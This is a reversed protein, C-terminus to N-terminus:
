SSTLQRALNWHVVLCSQVRTAECRDVGRNLREWSKTIHETPTPGARATPLRGVDYRLVFVGVVHDKVQIAVDIEGKIRGSEARHRRDGDEIM